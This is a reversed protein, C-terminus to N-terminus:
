SDTYWYLLWDITKMCVLFLLILDYLSMSCQILIIKKKHNLSCYTITLCSQFCKMENFPPDLNFLQAADYM